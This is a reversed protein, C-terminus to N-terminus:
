RMSWGGDVLVGHLRVFDAPHLVEPRVTEPIGARALAEGAREPGWGTLERLARLMQKRRFGFLGVVLARFSERDADAVLPETL